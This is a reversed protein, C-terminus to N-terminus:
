LKTLRDIVDTDTHGDFAHHAREAAPVEFKTWHRVEYHFSIQGAPLTACVIFWGGGFCLGNNHHRMSKHVDYLGRRAWDNFLAVTLAMRMAYLQDFTHYGDSVQGVDVGPPLEISRGMTCMTGRLGTKLTEGAEIVDKVRTTGAPIMM